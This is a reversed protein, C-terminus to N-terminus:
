RQGGKAQNPRAARRQAAQDTVRQLDAEVALRKGEADLEDERLQDNHTKQKDM